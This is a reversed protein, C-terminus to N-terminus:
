YELLRRLKTEFRSSALFQDELEAAFPVPTNLSACRAVPADLHDFLHEGIYAAIEGGIGGAMTDEHLVLVKGTKKTSEEIAPYDLPSLTRLDLVRASIDPNRGLFETAWHVGLGYTIISVQEGDRVVCAEGIAVTYDDQPIEESVSRYLYKHEYFLVPNPDEVASLLLGKADHPCSPYVVKLGPVASFWAESSASHDPGARVGAGTPMRIVVDVNQGWRYHLKAINNVLQNFGCTVFDAFQMVVVSKFGNVSLGITAGLIASECIPTNRVRAKGFEEVFGKTVKFVGGYEAVDQGMIVLNEHRRMAGRLGDSIADVFRRSTSDSTAPMLTPSDNHRFVDGLEEDASYTATEYSYAREVAQWISEKEESYIAEARDSDLLGVELLFDKYTAIPGRRQWEEVLEQPVYETGSAEEHGRIRFTLCEVLVPRPRQRIEEAFDRVIQFVELVNNGDIQVGEIGYGKARDALNECRFQEAVPTSLGYQNNEIVFIVPLDWVSAVNLAEHFDGESTGGDGCLVLSCKQEERLRHSLAIGDAVPMHAALHAISGVVYHEKSGFYYSRERGKSFGQPKGMFQAMLRDAPVDRTLFVPLSRHIPLVYEDKQLALVAGVGVAEQGIGSFWKTIKGQRLDLLMREEFLRPRLLRRYVDLFFSDSLQQGAKGQYYKLYKPQEQM